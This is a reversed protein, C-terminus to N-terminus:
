IMERRVHEADERVIQLGNLLNIKTGNVNLGANEDWFSHTDWSVVMAKIIYVVEGDPRYLEMYKM